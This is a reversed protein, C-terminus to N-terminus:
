RCKVTKGGRQALVPCTELAQMDGACCPSICGIRMCPHYKSKALIFLMDCFCSSCFGQLHVSALNEELAPATSASLQCSWCPAPSAALFDM